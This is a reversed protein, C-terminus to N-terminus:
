IWDSLAIGLGIANTYHNYEILSQGYGSFLHLMGRVRQHIPFVYNLELAGRSFGSAFNNRGWSHYKRGTKL